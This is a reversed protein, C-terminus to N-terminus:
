KALPYCGAGVLGDYGPIKMVYARKAETKKTQPQPWQYDIWGSGKTKAIDALNKILFQGDATKLDILNKGILAKNAGHCVNTGDMKYCFLYIDKNHWKGGPTSFDEFAKATGVEQIHQIAHEVMQKADASSGRQEQALATGTVFIGAIVLAMLYGLTQKM